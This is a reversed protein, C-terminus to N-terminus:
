ECVVGDNDADPYWGYETDGRRYPGYHHQRAQQCTGFRPDTAPKDSTRPKPGPRPAASIPAVTPAPGVAPTGATAAAGPPAPEVRSAPRDAPGNDGPLLAVFGAAGVLCLVLATGFIAGVRRRPSLRAFWIPAAPPPYSMAVTERRALPAPM